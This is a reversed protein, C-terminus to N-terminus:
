SFVTNEQVTTRIFTTCKSLDKLKKAGVYACASRIGGLIDQVVDKVPGKYPVEVCKGEAAKYNAVGGSHKDMAERSSMGYFKLCKKVWKINGNEDSEVKTGIDNKTLLAEEEWLGESEDTGAFMGGLMVFDSGGGFAKVVDGPVTCGGDSCILGGLGHATDACEIVASLQPFGVGTKIRTTCVSGPGIGIKVIDAAGSLLLESVMEPTCVNGAMIISSPCVERVQKVKDQFYNTYGNAVDVCIMKPCIGIGEKVKGLKVFDGDTIGMTYFVYSNNNTKFFSILEEVSYHKHLCTVMQYESLAEAMAFTGVVDMNAAMIPVGSWVEGSNLTKYTRILDVKSRSATESRKPRILVDKFDLKLENIIQM